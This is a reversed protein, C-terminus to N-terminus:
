RSLGGSVAAAPTGMAAGQLAQAVAHSFAAMNFPKQLFQLHNLQTLHHSVESNSYGSMLVIPLSSDHTRLRELTAAGDLRPMTLDLIVLDLPTSSDRVKDLADLGDVATSVDADLATLFEAVTWRVAEEDDVVLVNLGRPVQAAAVRPAPLMSPIRSKSVPLYVSFRTGEGCKSDVAIGGGHSRVIGLVAALGLGRGQDKTSFFPEFIRDKIREEMGIGTDEVDLRVYAGPTLDEILHVDQARTTFHTLSTAIRVIGAEGNMADSANTILNMLVQSLQSPDGSVLPAAGDLRYDIQVSKSVTVELLNTIDSVLTGLAVDEVRYRGKGAYALLQNCLESARTVSKRVQELDRRVSQGRAIHREALDTHGLMSMLLNNFDHAIGGALIGLSELRQTRQVRQHMEDLERAHREHMLESAALPAYMTLVSLLRESDEVPKDDIVMLHGVIGDSSCLAVSAYSVAELGTLDADDPYCGRVDSFVVLSMGGAVSRCPTGSFAYSFNPLIAGGVAWARTRGAKGGADHEVVGCAKVSLISALRTALNHLSADGRMTANSEMLRSLARREEVEDGIHDAAVLVRPGDATDVSSAHVRALFESGDMRRLLREQRLDGTRPLVRLRQWFADVSFQPVVDALNVRTHKVADLGLMRRFRQNCWLLDATDPEIVALGMPVSEVLLDDRRDGRDRSEGEREAANPEGHTQLDSFRRRPEIELAISPATGDLRAGHLNAEMGSPMLTVPLQQEARSGDALNDLLVKIAERNIPAIYDLITSGCISDIGLMQRAGADASQLVGDLNSLLLGKSPSAEPRIEIGPEDVM